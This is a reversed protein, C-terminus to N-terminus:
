YQTLSNGKRMRLYTVAYSGQSEWTHCAWTGLMVFMIDSIMLGIKCIDGVRSLDRSVINITLSLWGRM